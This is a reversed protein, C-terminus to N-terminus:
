LIDVLEMEPESSSLQKTTPETIEDTTETAQEENSEVIQETTSTVVANENNCEYFFEQITDEQISSFSIFSLENAPSLKFELPTNRNITITIKDDKEGASSKFKGVVIENPQDALIIQPTRLTKVRVGYENQVFSISTPIEQYYGNSFIKASTEM